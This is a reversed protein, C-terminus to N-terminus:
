GNTDSELNISGGNENLLDDEECPYFHWISGGFGQQENGSGIPLTCPYKSAEIDVAIQRMAEIGEKANM